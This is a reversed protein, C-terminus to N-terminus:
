SWQSSISHYAWVFLYILITFYLVEVVIKYRVSRDRPPIVNGEEDTVSEDYTRIAALMGVPILISVRSLLVVDGLSIALLSLVLGSVIIFVFLVIRSRLKNGEKM